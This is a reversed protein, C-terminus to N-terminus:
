EKGGKLRIYEGGKECDMLRIYKNNKEYEVSFIAGKKAFRWILREINLLERAATFKLGARRAANHADIYGDLVARAQRKKEENM